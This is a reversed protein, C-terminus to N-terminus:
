VRSGSQCVWVFAPCKAKGKVRLSVVNWLSLAIVEVNAAQSNHVLLANSQGFGKGISTASLPGGFYLFM